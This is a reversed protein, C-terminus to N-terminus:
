RALFGEYDAAAVARCKELYVNLGGLYVSFSRPKGPINAGVYWSNTRPLLSMNGVETVHKTWEEQASPQAEMTELGEAKMWALAEAVWDIAEEGVTVM